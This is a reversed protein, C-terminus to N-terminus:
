LQHTADQRAARRDPDHTRLCTVQRQRRSTVRLSRGGESRDLRLTLISHPLSCIALFRCVVLTRSTTYALAREAQRGIMQECRTQHDVGITSHARLYIGTKLVSIDPCRRLRSIRCLPGATLRGWDPPTRAVHIILVPRPTGKPAAECSEPMRSAGASSTSQTPLTRRLASGAENSM